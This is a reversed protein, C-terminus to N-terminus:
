FFLFTEPRDSCIIAQFGFILSRPINTKNGRDIAVSDLLLAQTLTTDSNDQLQELSPALPSIANSFSDGNIGNIFGNAGDSNGSSSNGNPTFTSSGLDQNNVKTAVLVVPPVAGFEFAGIDVTGNVIRSFGAGRQDTTVGLPINANNGRDIAM